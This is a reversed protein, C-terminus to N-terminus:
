VWRNPTHGLLIGLLLRTPSGGVDGLGKVLSAQTVVEGQRGAAAALPTRPDPPPIVVEPRRSNRRRM